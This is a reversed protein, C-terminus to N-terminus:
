DIFAIYGINWVKTPESENNRQDCIEQIQKKNHVYDIEMACITNTTTDTCELSFELM